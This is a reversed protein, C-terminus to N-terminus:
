FHINVGAAIVDLDSRYKGSNIIYPPQAAATTTLQQALKATADAKGYPLEQLPAPPKRDAGIAGVAKDISGIQGVPAMCQSRDMIKGTWCMAIIDRTQEPPPAATITEQFIHAFSAVLDIAKAVRVIVGGHLGIRQVPWYDIQMYSPDIGRNEYNVGAMLGVVGPLLNITTGARVSIQNKWHKEVVTQTPGDASAMVGTASLFNVKWPPNDFLLTQKDNVSNNEYQVDLEIDFREDQLPDHIREPNAPDPEHNGTGSPRPALRSAYRIGGRLKWPMHQVLSRIPRDGNTYHQFKPDFDGTTLDIDGKAKLDDQWRFAVVADIADIPVAHASVTFAPVFWDQAKVHAIIDNSPSTGGGSSTMTFNNVSIIGWEFAAGLRLQKFLRFGIGVNPFVGIASASLMQYRTAAPRLEGTDGRIVGNRGGWDGQPMAEPFILGAGIGIRESLRATWVLQPIPVLHQDM